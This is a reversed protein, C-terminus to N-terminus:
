DALAHATQETSVELDAASRPETM